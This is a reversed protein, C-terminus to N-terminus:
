SNGEWPDGIEELGKLDSLIEIKERLTEGNKFSIQLRYGSGEFFPPYSVTVGEPLGLGSIKKQFANESRTLLPFRRSKLHGLVRKAKQPTNLKKDEMVSVFQKERIVEPIMKQEKISIDLTYEIFQLQQNFNLNLNNIWQYTEFRSDVDMDLLAKITPFSLRGTAFSTTITEDLDAMRLYVDLTSERAPLHLLHMYVELIEKVSTRATLGRLIMGKEVDNFRRIPLNDHFSTLFLELSSLGSDSLDRCPVGEWDLSKLALIRRFGVVVDFKGNDTKVVLPSNLLGINEISKILPDLDFGFSMCYPGPAQNILSLNVFIEPTKSIM